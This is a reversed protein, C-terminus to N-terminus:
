ARLVARCRPCLEPDGHEDYYKWCRQCKLGPAKRGLIVLRPNSAMRGFWGDSSFSEAGDAGAKIRQAAVILSATETDMIAVDSVIFFDALLGRYEDLMPGLAGDSGRPVGIQLAAELPAGITGTQRMTELLQLAEDRLAVLRSWRNELASDALAPNAPALELLHVSEAREGPLHSYIEDATFPILPALMRVLADLLVYIASQASRRERSREGSCYLRDRVVDIYLSSLEVVVFKVIGHYATQFDFKAYADRVERKLRELRALIYRDFELMAEPALADRAPDFDYLNGLIYRATNRLKRYSEAVASFLNEGVSM